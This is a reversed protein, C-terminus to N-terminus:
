KEIKVGPVQRELEEIWQRFLLKTHVMVLTTVNNRAIIDVGLLKVGVM